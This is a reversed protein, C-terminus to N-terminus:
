GSALRYQPRVQTAFVVSRTPRSLNLSMRVMEAAAAAVAASKTGLMGM